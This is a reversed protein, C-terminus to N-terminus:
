SFGRLGFVEPAHTIGELTGPVPQGLHDHAGQRPQRAVRLVGSGRRAQEACRCLGGVHPNRASSVTGTNPGAYTARWIRLQTPINLRKLMARGKDLQQMYAAVNDTKVSIVRLVVTSAASAASSMAIALAAAAILSTFKRSMIRGGNFATLHTITATPRNHNKPYAFRVDFGAGVCDQDGACPLPARGQRAGM